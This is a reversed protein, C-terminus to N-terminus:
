FVTLSILVISEGVIYTANPLYISVCPSFSLLVLVFVDVFWALFPFVFSMM